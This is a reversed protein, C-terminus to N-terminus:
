RGLYHLGGGEDYNVIYFVAQTLTKKEKDDADDVVIQDKVKRPKDNGAQRANPNPSTATQAIQV